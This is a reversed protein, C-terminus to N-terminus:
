AAEQEELVEEVRRRVAGRIFDPVQIDAHTESSLKAAADKIRQWDVAPWILTQKQPEQKSPDTM